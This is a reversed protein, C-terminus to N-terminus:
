VTTCTCRRLAAESLQQELDARRKGADDARRKEDDARRTEDDARKAALAARAELMKVHRLYDSRREKAEAELHRVHNRIEVLTLESTVSRRSDPDGEARQSQRGGGGGGSGSSGGSSVGLM